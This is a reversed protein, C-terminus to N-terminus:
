GGVSRGEEREWAGTKRGDGGWGGAWGGGEGFANTRNREQVETMGHDSVLLLLTPTAAAAPASLATWITDVVADMEALKAPMLVSRHGDLHGIHDLGLYHLVLVDWDTRALEDPLHRTVNRDM